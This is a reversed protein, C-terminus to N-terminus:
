FTFIGGATLFVGEQQGSSLLHVEGKLGTEIFLGGGDPFLDWFRTGIILSYDLSLDSEDGVQEFFIGVGVGAGFYLPFDGRADPFTVLPGVVLKLPKEGDIEYTIIETRFNLDMSSTWEGIRYTVGAILEGPDESKKRDGWRYQKDNIFTGLHLGLIREGTAAMTRKPTSETGLGSETAVKKRAKFYDTAASKGVKPKEYVVEDEENEAFRSSPLPRTNKNTPDELLIQAQASEVYLGRSGGNIPLWCCLVLVLTFHLELRSTYQTM